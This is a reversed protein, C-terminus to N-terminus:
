LSLASFDRKSKLGANRRTAMRHCLLGSIAALPLSRTAALAAARRRGRERGRRMAPLCYSEHYAERHSRYSNNAGLQECKSQARALCFQKRLHIVGTQGTPSPAEAGTNQALDTACQPLNPLGALGSVQEPFHCHNIEKVPNSGDGRPCWVCGRSHLGSHRSRAPSSCM